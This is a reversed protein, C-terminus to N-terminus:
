IEGAEAMSLVDGRAVILHDILRVDLLGLTTKIHVTLSRDAASSEARGSPHNHLLIVAAAGHQLVARVVERPYVTCQNITGVAVTDADILRLQNDLFLVVFQEVDCTVLRATAWNKVLTPTNLLPQGRMQRFLMKEIQELAAIPEIERYHGDPERVFLGAMQPELSEPKSESPSNTFKITQQQQTM